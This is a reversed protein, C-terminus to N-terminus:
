GSATRLYVPHTLLSVCGDLCVPFKLYHYDSVPGDAPFMGTFAVEGEGGPPIAVDAVLRMRADHFRANRVTGGVCGRVPGASLNRIVLRHTFEQGRYVTSPGEVQWDFRETGFGERQETCRPCVEMLLLRFPVLPTTFRYGVAVACGCSRCRARQEGVLTLPRPWAEQFSYVEAAIQDLLEGVLQRQLRAPVRGGTGRRDAPLGDAAERLGPSSRFLACSAALDSMPPINVRERGPVPRAAGASLAPAPASSAPGPCRVLRIGGDGLVTLPGFAEPEAALAANAAAVAVAVPEGRRLRDAILEGADLVQSRLWTSGVFALAGGDLAALALSVDPGFEGGTVRAPRCSDALIVKARIDAIPVIRDGQWGNRFCGLGQECATLPGDHAALGAPGVSGRRARGCIMGDRVLLGCERGHARITILDPGSAQRAQAVSIGCSGVADLSTAALKRAPRQTVTRVVLNSAAALHRATFVSAPITAPLAALFEPRVAEPALVIVAPQGASRALQLADTVTGAQRTERGTYHALIQGAAALPDGRVTIVVGSASHRVPATAPRSALWARLAPNDLVPIPSSTGSARLGAARGRYADPDDLPDLGDWEGKM